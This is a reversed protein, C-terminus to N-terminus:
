KRKISSPQRSHRPCLLLTCLIARYQSLSRKSSYAQCKIPDPTNMRWNQSKRPNSFLIHFWLKRKVKIKVDPVMRTMCHGFIISWSAWLCTYSHINARHWIYSYFHPIFQGKVLIYGFNGRVGKRSQSLKV